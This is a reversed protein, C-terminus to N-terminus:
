KAGLGTLMVRITRLVILIDIWPSFYKIYFFHYHLKDLIEDDEIVHGQNVQAWGTIGPRVVHRYRYFPFKREYSRSLAVVEPRPGIWSMDGNLINIVQPLEDIRTRRLLRGIKTLRPDGKETKNAALDNEADPKAYMSRFKWIQFTRGRYGMREQRYFVPGRSDFRILIAVFVFLPVLLPLVVVAGLRDIWHKVKWYVFNPQLTGIASESLHSIEVRGTVTEVIQRVHYIPMGRIASETVFEQWEFPLDARLDVILADFHRKQISPVVLKRITGRTIQSVPGINGFPVVAFRPALRCLVIFYIAHFWLLCALFSTAM